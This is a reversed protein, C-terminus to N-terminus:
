GKYDQFEDDATLEADLDLDFGETDADTAGVPAIPEAAAAAPPTQTQAPGAFAAQEGTRFFDMTETMTAAQRTLSEATAASQQAAAANQQIIRDLDRIAANIQEAGTNQERAAASIEQVLDATRRINPLLTGLMRGAEGSVQVTRDSLESIEAAAAQSREALKRVESAVVAFGRGHEGARAAEVAANLALLDTQRAIEQIITIKEAITKMAAVADNVAAGSKEAEGASQTAIKETQAANDASQRINATMEEVSASAEQAAAAQQNAGASIQAATHNLERASSDVGAASERTDRIAGGLRALMEEIARGVEDGDSRRRYEVALDGAAIARLVVGKERLSGTMRALGRMLDGIEDRRGTDLALDLDGEAVSDAARVAHDLGAGITRTIWIAAGIGIVIVAGAALLLGALASEYAARNEAQDARMRATEESILRSFSQMAASLAASAPGTIRAYAAQDANELSVSIAEQGAAVFADYAERLAARAEAVADAGVSRAVADLEALFATGIEEFEARHGAKEETPRALLAANVQIRMRALTTELALIETDVAGPFGAAAEAAVTFDALAAEVAAYTELGAGFLLDKARLDTNRRTLALAEGVAALYTDVEETLTAFAARSQTGGAEAALADIGGLLAEGRAAVAESQAAMAAPDESVVARLVRAEIAVLEERLAKIATLTEVRGDVLRTIRDDARRLDHVALAALGGALLILLSVTAFIKAKITFRM